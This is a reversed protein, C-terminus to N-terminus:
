PCPGHAESVLRSTSHFCPTLSFLSTLRSACTCSCGPLKALPQAPDSLKILLHVCRSYIGVAFASIRGFLLHQDGRAVCVSIGGLRFPFCPRGSSLLEGRVFREVGLCRNPVYGALELLEFLFLFSDLAYITCNKACRM